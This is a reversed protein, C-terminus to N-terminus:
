NKKRKPKLSYPACPKKENEGLELTPQSCILALDKRAKPNDKTKDTINLCTSIISEGMNREQHMIDSNHMLILAKVYPLEWLDCKHTWNHKTGFGEFQNGHENLKLDNLGMLIELGSLRKPPGRMVITDNRFTNRDFRFPHDRPL